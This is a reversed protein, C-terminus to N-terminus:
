DDTGVEDGDDDGGSDDDGGDDAGDDDVPPAPAPPPPPPAAPPPEVPVPSPSPPAPALPAAPEVPQSLQLDIEVLGERLEIEILAEEEGRVLVYAWEGDAYRIDAREWAHDAIVGEYFARVEHVTAAALYEAAALRYGADSSLEYASRASGPYRPLSAFDEGAVDDPPVTPRVSPLPTAARPLVPPSADSGPRLADVVGGVVVGSLLLGAVLLSAGARTAVHWNVELTQDSRMLSRHASYSFARMSGPSM